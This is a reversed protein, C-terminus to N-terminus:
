VAASPIPEGGGDLDKSTRPPNTLVEADRMVEEPVRVGAEVQLKLNALAKDRAAKIDRVLRSVLESPPMEKTTDNM